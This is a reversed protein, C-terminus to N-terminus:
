ARRGETGNSPSSKKSAYLGPDEAAVAPHGKFSLVHAESILYAKCEESCESFYMLLLEEDKSLRKRQSNDLLYDITVNLVGSIKILDEMNPQKRSYLYEDLVTKSIGTKSLLEDYHINEEKMIAKVRDQFSDDYFFYSYDNGGDSTKTSGLLYETSVGLAKALSTIMDASMGTTYGREWNSIVQSSVGVLKGLEGQTLGKLKRRTRLNENFEPM